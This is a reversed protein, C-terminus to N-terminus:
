SRGREKIIYEAYGIDQATTIKLNVKDTIVPFIKYGMNEVLSNDDTVSGISRANNLAESYIDSRFVQPTEALLLTDRPLTESIMGDMDTKKVTDYVRTALTAAGHIFAASVAENIMDPTILCRAADHIAIFGVNEEVAMFGLRASEQRSKGGSVVRVVKRFRETDAKVFDVESDKAVIIVSSILDAKEFARVCHSLVTDECIKIKTKDTNEGLRRSEGAALIIACVRTNKISELGEDGGIKSETIFM